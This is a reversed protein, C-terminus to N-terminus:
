SEMENNWLVTKIEPHQTSWFNCAINSPLYKSLYFNINDKKGIQELTGDYFKTFNNSEIDSNKILEAMRASCVVTFIDTNIRKESIENMAKILTETSFM